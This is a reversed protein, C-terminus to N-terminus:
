AKGFEGVFGVMAEIAKGAEGDFFPDMTAFGHIMGPHHSFRVDVGAAQLKRGYAVGQETLIDHEATILIAPPLGALDVALM